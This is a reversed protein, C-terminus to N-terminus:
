FDHAILFIDTTQLRGCPTLASSSPSSVNGDRIADDLRKMAIMGVGEGRGYGEGRDDFSFSRGEGNFIGLQTAMIMQDPSFILGVGGALAMDAEGALLSQCAHNVAVLSGSCGTDLTVSPGHLDFIYSVKAALLTKATGTGHYKTFCLPDKMMLHEYDHGFM